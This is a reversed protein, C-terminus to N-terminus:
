PRRAPSNSDVPPTPMSWLREELVAKAQSQLGVVEGAVGLRGVDPELTAVEEGAVQEGERAPVIRDPRFAGRRDEAAADRPAVLVDLVQESRRGGEAARSTPVRSGGELAGRAALRGRLHIPRHGPQPPQFVRSATGALRGWRRAAARDRGRRQGRGIERRGSAEGAAEGADVPHETAAQDGPETTRSAPSGPTPM